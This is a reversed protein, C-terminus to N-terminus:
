PQECYCWYVCRTTVVAAVQDRQVASASHGYYARFSKM